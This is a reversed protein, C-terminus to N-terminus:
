YNMGFSVFGSWAAPHSFLKSKIMQRKAVALAKLADDEYNKYFIQSLKSTSKDDVKWLTAIVSPVGAHSFSRALTAFETGNGGVGTECASLFVLDTDKLKLLEIDIMSLRRNDALTLFSNEPAISDLTGHTALHIIKSQPGQEELKEYTAAKGIKLITEQDRSELTKSITGAEKRAGKLSGDPDGFILAQDSLSPEHRMALNFLYMSPMQGLAIKEALYVPKEDYREVLASIPLYTLYGTPVFFVRKARYIEERMPLILKNYLWHLEAWLERNNKDTLEKSQTTRSLDDVAYSMLGNVLKMHKLIEASQVDVERAIQEDRSIYLIHLKDKGPLFQLFADGPKIEKQLATLELPKLQLLQFLGPSKRELRLLLKAMKKRKRKLRREFLERDFQSTKKEDKGKEAREKKASELKQSYPGAKTLGFELANIEKHLNNYALIQKYRPDTKKLGKFFIDRQRRLKEQEGAMFATSGQNNSVLFSVADGGGSDYVLLGRDTGAYIKGFEDTAIAHVTRAGYRALHQDPLMWNLRDPYFWTGKNYAVVGGASPFLWVSDGLKAGRRGLFLSPVRELIDLYSKDKRARFTTLQGGRHLAFGDGTGAIGREDDLKTYGTIFWPSDSYHDRKPDLLVFKDNKWELIGGWLKFGKHEIHSEDSAIVWIRGDATELVRSLWNNPLPFKDKDLFFNFEQVKGDTWRFVSGNNTAWISGDSAALISTLLNGSLDKYSTTADFIKEPVDSGRKLRYIDNGSNFVLYGNKTLALHRVNFNGILGPAKTKGEKHFIIELKGGRAVYTAKLVPDSLLDHVADGKDVWIQRREITYVSNNDSVMAYHQDRGDMARVAGAKDSLPLKKHEFHNDHWFSIGSDTMVAITTFTKNNQTIKAESFGYMLRSAIINQQGRMASLKVPKTLDGAKGSFIERNSLMMIELPQDDSSSYLIADDAARSIATSVQEGKLILVKKELGILLINTAKGPEAISRITQNRLFIVESRIAAIDKLNALQKIQGSKNFFTLGRSTGVAVSNGWLALKRIRPSALGDQTSVWRRFTGGLTEARILGNATGLWLVGNSTEVISLINSSAKAQDDSSGLRFKGTDEDFIYRLWIGRQKAFLGKNSGILLDGSRRIYVINTELSGSLKSGAYDRAQYRRWYGPNDIFSRPIWRASAAPNLPKERLESLHKHTDPLAALRQQIHSWSKWKDLSLGHPYKKSYLDHLLGNLLVLHKGDRRQGDSFEGTIYEILNDEARHGYEKHDSVRDILFSIYKYQSNTKALRDNAAEIQALHQRITSGDVRSEPLNGKLYSDTRSTLAVLKQFARTVVLSINHGQPSNVKKIEGQEDYEVVIEGVDVVSIKVPKNQANYVFTLKQIKEDKPKNQFSIVKGFDDYKLKVEESKNNKLSTLDGADNYVLEMFKGNSQEIRKPLCSASYTIRMWVAGTKQWVMKGCRPDDRQEKVTGDKKFIRISTTASDFEVRDQDKYANKRAANFWGVYREGDGVTRARSYRAEYAKAGIGFHSYVFGVLGKAKAYEDPDVSKLKQLLEYAYVKSGGWKTHRKIAWRYKGGDMPKREISRHISKFVIGQSLSSLGFVSSSTLWKNEPNIKLLQQLDKVAEKKKNFAINLKFRSVYHDELNWKIKELYQSARKWDQETMNERSDNRRRIIIEAMNREYGTYNPFRRKLEELVGIAKRWEKKEVYPWHADIYPRKSNPYRRLAELYAANEAKKRDSYTVDLNNIIYTTIGTWYKDNYEPESKWKLILEDFAKKGGVAKVAVLHNFFQYGITPFERILKHSIQLAKKPEGSAIYADRLSIHMSKSTPFKEFAEEALKVRDKNKKQRNLSWLVRDYIDISVRGFRNETLSFQKKAEDYEKLKNLVRLYTNVHNLTAMGHSVAIQAYRAAVKTRGADEELDARQFNLHLDKPWRKLATKLVDRARGYEGATQLSKAYIQETKIKLADGRLGLAIPLRNKIWDHAEDYRGLKSLYPGFTFSPLERFPYLKHFRKASQLADDYRKQNNHNYAKNLAAYADNPFAKLWLGFRNKVSLTNKTLKKTIEVFAEPPNASKNEILALADKRFKLDVELEDVMNWVSLYLQPHRLINQQQAATELSGNGATKAIKNIFLLAFPDNIEDLNLKEALEIAEQWEGAQHLRVLEPLPGLIKLLEPSVTKQWGKTLKGVARRCATWVHRSFLHKSSSLLDKEVAATVKAFDSDIYSSSWQKIRPDDYPSATEAFSLTSQFILILCIIGLRILLFYRACVGRM